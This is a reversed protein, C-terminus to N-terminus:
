VMLIEEGYRLPIGEWVLARGGKWQMGDLRALCITGGELEAWVGGRSFLLVVGEICWSSAATHPCQIPHIGGSQGGGSIFRGLASVRGVLISTPENCWAILALRSVSRQSLLLM